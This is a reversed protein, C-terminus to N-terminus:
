AGAADTAAESLRVFEALDVTAGEPASSQTFLVADGVATVIFPVSLVGSSSTITTVAGFTEDGAPSPVLPEFSMSAGETTMPTEVGFCDSVAAKLNAVAATPDTSPFIQETFHLSDREFAATVPASPEGLISRFDGECVTLPSARAADPASTAPPVVSWGEPLQELTLLRSELPPAASSSATASEPVPSPEATGIEPGACGGLALAAVVGILALPSTQRHSSRTRRRMCLLKAHDRRRRAATIHVRAPASPYLSIVKENVVSLRLMVM